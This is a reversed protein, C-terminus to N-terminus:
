LERILREREDRTAIRALCSQPVELAVDGRDHALARALFGFTFLTRPDDVVLLDLLDEANGPISHLFRLHLRLDADDRPHRPRRGTAVQHHDLRELHRAGAAQSDGALQAVDHAFRHVGRVRVYPRARRLKPDLVLLELLDIEVDM